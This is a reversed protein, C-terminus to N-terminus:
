HYRYRINVRIMGIDEVIYVRSASAARASPMLRHFVKSVKMYDFM